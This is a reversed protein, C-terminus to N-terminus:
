YPKTTRRATNKRDPCKEPKVVSANSFEKYVYFPPV